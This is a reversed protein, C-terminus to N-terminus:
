LHNICNKPLIGNTALEELDQKLRSKFDQWECETAPCWAREAVAALRPVLQYFLHPEDLVFETWLAAQVGLVQDDQPIEADWVQKLEISPTMGTPEDPTGTVQHNLYMQPAECYIVDNDSSLARNVGKEPVWAFVLEDGVMPTDCVEDWVAVRKTRRRLVQRAFRQFVGQLQRADNVEFKKYYQGIGPHKEWKEYKCEDGGIHVFAGPFLDCIRDLVTEIFDFSEQHPWLLDNGTGFEGINWLEPDIDIKDPNGLHPYARIAAAMHGPLDIEPMIEIDLSRAYDVIEHIEDDTYARYQLTKGNQVVRKVKLKDVNGYHTFEQRPLTGSVTALLPYEAVNFRWGADDTLHWHLRNLRWWSMLDLVHKVTDIPWFTRASDLLLGRWNYSPKTVKPNPILLSHRM